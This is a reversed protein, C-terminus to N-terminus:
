KLWSLDVEFHQKVEEFSVERGFTNLDHMDNIMNRDHSVMLWMPRDTHQQNPYRLAREHTKIGFVTGISRTREVYSIFPPAVQTKLFFRNDKWIIGNNFMIFESKESVLSQTREIYDKSYGDDSDLRSTIIWKDGKSKDFLFQKFELTRPALKQGADTKYVLGVEEIEDVISDPTSPDVLLVPTFDHNTQSRLSPATFARFFKMRHELWDLNTNGTNFRIVVFHNM